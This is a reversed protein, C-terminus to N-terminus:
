QGIADGPTKNCLVDTLISEIYMLIVPSLRPILHSKLPNNVKTKTVIIIYATLTTVM